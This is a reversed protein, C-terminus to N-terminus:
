SSPVKLDQWVGANDTAKHPQVPVPNIGGFVLVLVSIPDYLLSLITCKEGM